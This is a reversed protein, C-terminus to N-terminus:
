SQTLYSHTWMGGGPYSAPELFESYLITNQAGAPDSLTVTEGGAVSDDYGSLVVFHGVSAGFGIRIGIPRKGDLEMKIDSLDLRFEPPAALNATAALASELFADQNCPDIAACCTTVGLVSNAVTCQTWTSGPNYFRAVSTAVAAWCLLTGQQMEILFPLNASM